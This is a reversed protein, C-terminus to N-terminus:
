THTVSGCIGILSGRETVGVALRPFVCGLNVEDLPDEGIMLFSQAHLHECEHFWRIMNRWPQLEEASRLTDDDVDTLSYDQVVQSWWEGKEASPNTWYDTVFNKVREITDDQPSDHSM